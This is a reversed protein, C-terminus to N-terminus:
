QKGRTARRLEIDGATAQIQLVPGGGNVLGQAFLSKPGFQGGESTVKIDPFESRIQHGAALEVVANVRVKLGPDLYVVIDGAPTQLSSNTFRDGVFEAVIGGAGTQVNAGRTLGFLHLAGAATNAVVQGSAQNLRISGGGTEAQLSNCSHVDISGITRVMAEDASGISVDGGGSYVNLKGKVSGVHIAGGGTKVTLDGRVTGAEVKGGGSIARVPGTIDDLRVKGMATWLEVRGEVGTVTANGGKSATVKLQELKRPVRVLLDVNLQGSAGPMTGGLVASHGSLAATYHFRAFQQKAFEQSAAAMRKKLVYEIRPEAGGQVVVSGMELKIALDAAMPLSGTTEEVWSGGERYVRSQQAALPVALLLAGVLAAARADRTLRGFSYPRRM